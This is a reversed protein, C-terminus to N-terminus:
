RRIVWLAVHGLGDFDPIQLCIQRAIRNIPADYKPEEPAVLLPHVVRSLFYYMGFRQITELGSFLHRIKEMVEEEEFKNSFWNSKLDAEPIPTLGLKARICNLKRLGQLTGELMLYRGGPKLVRAIESLAQWQHDRSPLNLLCRQSVVTDFVGSSFSLQTVDGVQFTVTGKLQFRSCLNQAADIMEPVFDVGCFNSNIRAAHCLTSYGNGCGVDLVCQGDELYRSIYEIEIERLNFDPSTAYPDSTARVRYFQRIDDTSETSDKKIKM